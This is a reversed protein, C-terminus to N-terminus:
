EGPKKKRGSDLSDGKRTALASSLIIPLHQLAFSHGDLPTKTSFSLILTFRREDEVIDSVIINRNEWVLRQVGSSFHSQFVVEKFDQFVVYQLVKGILALTIGLADHPVMSTYLIASPM